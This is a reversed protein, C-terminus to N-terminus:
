IEANATGGARLRLPDCPIRHGVLVVRMLRYASPSFLTIMGGGGRGGVGLLM